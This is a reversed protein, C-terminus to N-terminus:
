KEIPKLPLTGIFDNKGLPVGAQRLIGYATTVHFFFNPLYSELLAERGLLYTNPVYPFPIHREEAGTFKARDLTKLYAVTKDVRGLLDNWTTETDEIKPPEEGSLRACISKAADSTIQVQRVLPYMDPALRMQLAESEAKGQETSWAQGKELIRRLNELMKVMVPVSIDYLNM